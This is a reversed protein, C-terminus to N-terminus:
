EICYATLLLLTEAGTAGLYYLHCLGINKLDPGGMARLMWGM